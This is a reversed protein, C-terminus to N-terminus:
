GLVTSDIFLLTQFSFIAVESLSFDFPKEDIIKLHDTMFFVQEPNLIAAKVSDICASASIPPDCEEREGTGVM